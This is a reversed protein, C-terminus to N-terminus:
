NGKVIKMMKITKGQLIEIIFMGGAFRRGVKYSQNASGKANHLTRGTMNTVRIEVLENSGKLTLRFEAARKYVPM